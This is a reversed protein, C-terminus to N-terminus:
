GWVIGKGKCAPCILPANPNQQLLVQASAENLLGPMCVPCKYPKREAASEPMDPMPLLDLIEHEVVSLRTALEDIRKTLAELESQTIQIQGSPMPLPMTFPEHKPCCGCQIRWFVQFHCLCDCYRRQNDLM